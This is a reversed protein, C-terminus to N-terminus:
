NKKILRIIFRKLPLPIKGIVDVTERSLPKLAVFLVAMLCLGPLGAGALIIGAGTMGGIDTAWPYLLYKLGAMLTGGALSLFVMKVLFGVPYRPKLTRHVVTAEYMYGIISAVVTGILAGLAGYYPILLYNLIINSGGFIVRSVVLLKEQDMASMFTATIGGLKMIAMTPFYLTLLMLPMWGVYGDGFLLKLIEGAMITGAVGIPIIYVFLYEFMVTYGRRLGEYDKKAYLESFFTLTIGGGLVLSFLSLATYSFTYAITYYAVQRIDPVMAGIMLLDLQQGLVFNMISYMYLFFSFKLIKGLPIPCEGGEGGPIAAMSRKAAMLVFVLQSVFTALLVGMVGYNLILVAAALILYLMKSAADLINIFKQLYFATLIGRFIPELTGPIVLLTLVRFYFALDPKGFLTNALWDAAFYIIVTLTIGLASKIALLNKVLPLIGHAEGKERLVPIYKNLTFDFGLATIIVLINLLSLTLALNGYETSGLFRALLVSSMFGAVAGAIMGVFNWGVGRILKGSGGAKGGGKNGSEGPSGTGQKGDPQRKKAGSM